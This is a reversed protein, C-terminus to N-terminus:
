SVCHKNRAHQKNKHSRQALPCSALTNLVPKRHLDLRSGSELWCLAGAVICHLLSPLAGQAGECDRCAHQALAVQKQPLRIRQVLDTTLWGRSDGLGPPASPRGKPVTRGEQTHGALTGACVCLHLSVGAGAQGGAWPCKVFCVPLIEFVRENPHLSLAM